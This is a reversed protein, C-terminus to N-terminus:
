DIESYAKVIDALTAEWASKKSAYFSAIHDAKETEGPYYEFLTNIFPSFATSYAFTFDMQASDRIIELMEKVEEDRTYKEKLAVEYYAPTVDKRSYYSLAECVMSTLKPDATTQPVFFMSTSTGIQTHYKEQNEDRKPYPVIGFDTKMDRLYDTAYLFTTMLLSRDEAFYGTYKQHENNGNNYVNDSKMFVNYLKNYLDVDKESLDAIMPNKDSDYEIVKVETSTQFARTPVTCSILGLLDKEPTIKGDGDLDGSVSNIMEIMKDVTWKGSRVLEYPDELKYETLLKKNFYCVSLDKYLSLSADGIFGYLKGGIALNDNMGQVWWPKNLNVFELKNADIFLGESAMPLVIVVVGNVLDFSNDGAVISNKVTANFNERDNWQGPQIIFNFKIGLQDEVAQNRRFVADNVIDGTEEVADYEYSAHQTTLITFTQGNYNIDSPLELKTAPDEAVTTESQDSPSTTSDSPKSGSDGCAATTLLMSMLLVTSIFNKKM